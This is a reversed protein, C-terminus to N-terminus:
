RFLYPGYFEGLWKRFELLWVALFAAFVVGILVQRLAPRAIRSTGRALLAGGTISLLGAAWYLEKQKLFLDIFVYRLAYAVIASALWGYCLLRLSPSSVRRIETAAGIGGIILLPASLFTLARASASALLPGGTSAEPLPAHAGSPLVSVFLDAIARPHYFLLSLALGALGASALAIAGNRDLGGVFPALLLSCGVLLGIHLFGATYSALAATIVLTAGVWNRKDGVSLGVKAFYLVVLLDLLRGLTAPGELLLLSRTLSPILVFIGCAYIPAAPAASARRALFAVPLLSLAGLTANAFLIWRDPAHVLWNGLHVITHFVPSYPFARSTGAVETVGLSHAMQYDPLRTWFDKVGRHYLLEVLTEQVQIDYFYYSPHFVWASRLLLVVFVMALVAASAQRWFLKVLGIIGVGALVPATSASAFRLAAFADFASWTVLAVATCVAAGLSGAWRAGALLLALFAGVLLFAASRVVSAQPWLRRANWEVASLFVPDSDEADCRLRLVARIRESPLALDIRQPAPSAVLTMERPEGAEFAARLSVREGGSYRVWLSVIGPGEVTVPFRIVSRRALARWVRGKEFRWERSLGSWGPNWGPRVRLPLPGHLMLLTLPLAVAGLAIATLLVRRTSSAALPGPLRM